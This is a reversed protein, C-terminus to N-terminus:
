RDRGPLHNGPQTCFCTRYYCNSRFFYCYSTCISGNTTKLSVRAENVTTAALTQNFTFSVAATPAVGTAGNAISAATLTLQSIDNFFVTNDTSTSASNFNGAVDTVVGAPLDLAISGSSTMNNVEAQYADPGGTIGTVAAGTATSSVVFDGPVLTAVDESFVVDFEVPAITAPDDQATAQNVTVTPATRDIVVTASPSSLSVNGNADKVTFTATYTGESLEIGTVSATGGASVIVPTGVASSNILLQVEQGAFANIIEFDLKNAATGFSTVEDVNSIGTDTSASLSPASTPAPEFNDFVVTNLVGPVGNLTLDADTGGVSQILSAGPLTISNINALAADNTNAPVSFTFTM